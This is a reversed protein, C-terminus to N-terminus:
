SIAGLIDVVYVVTSNSPVGEIGDQGFALSPPIVILVQSGIRQGELGKILGDPVGQTKALTLVKATNAGWPSDFVSGDSWLVATYKVVIHDGAIVTKGSGGILVNATLTSPPAEKPIVIGPAGNPATVVSPMGAQPVQPWGDAKGEMTRLVDVIFVFTDSTKDPDQGAGKPTTAIALRTGATACKLSLSVATPDSDGVTLMAGPTTADGKSLVTGTTGDVVLYQFIAVDGENLPRGEGQKLVTRETKKTVIPTPFEAQQPSGFMGVVKVSDSANGAQYEPTCDQNVGVQSCSTLGLVVVATSIIATFARM